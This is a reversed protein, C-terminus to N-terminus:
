LTDVPYVRPENVLELDHKFRQLITRVFEGEGPTDIKIMEWEEYTGFPIKRRFQVLRDRSDTSCEGGAQNINKRVICPSAFEGWGPPEPFFAYLHITALGNFPGDVKPLTRIPIKGANLSYISLSPTRLNGISTRQNVHGLMVWFCRRDDADTIAIFYKFGNLYLSFVLDITYLPNDLDFGKGVTLGMLRILEHHHLNGFSQALYDISALREPSPYAADSLYRTLGYLLLTCAVSAIVKSNTPISFSWMASVGLLLLALLFVRGIAEFQMYALKYQYFIKDIQKRVEREEAERRDRDAGTERPKMPPIAIELLKRRIERLEELSPKLILGLLFNAVAITIIGSVEM